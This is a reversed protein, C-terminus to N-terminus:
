SEKNIISPVVALGGRALRVPDVLRDFEEVTMLGDQIAAEGPNLENKNDM